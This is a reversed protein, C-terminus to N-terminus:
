VVVMESLFLTRSTIQELFLNDHSIILMTQPLTKLIELLKLYNRQDLDNTPEDLLLLQPQMALITALAVMKKEGGSLTFPPKEICHELELNRLIEMAIKEAEQFSKGQNLIGFMVDDLVTPCFLQDDADQFLFGIQLRLPYFDQETQPQKDWLFLRGGKPKLLGMILHFLTTKGSGNHGRLAVKEGQNLQFNLNVLLPKNTDYHFSLQELILIPRTM